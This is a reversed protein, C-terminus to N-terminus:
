HREREADATNVLKTIAPMISSILIGGQGILRGKHNFVATYPVGNRYKIGTQKMSRAFDGPTTQRVMYATFPIDGYSQLYRRMAAPNSDMSFAIINLRSKYEQAMRLIYPFNQRCISCWSAYVFVLVPVQQDAAKQILAGSATADIPHIEISRAFADGPAAGIGLMVVCCIVRVIAFFRM